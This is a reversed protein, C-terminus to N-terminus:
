VAGEPVTYDVEINNVTVRRFAGGVILEFTNGSKNVNNESIQRDQNTLGVGITLPFSTGDIIISSTTFLGAASTDGTTSADIWVKRVIAQRGPPARFVVSASFAVTGTSASADAFSTSIRPEIKQITGTNNSEALMEGTVYDFWLFGHGTTASAADLYRFTQSAFDYVLTFGCFGQLYYSNRGAAGRTPIRTTGGPFDGSTIGYRTVPLLKEDTVNEAFQGNFRYIGDEAWYYLGSTSSAITYPALTGPAGEVRQVVFPEDTGLIEYLASKTFCFLRDNWVLVRQCPDTVGSTVDVFAQVAELRGIPSYYARGQTGTGFVNRTWWVRGYHVREICDQFVLEPDRPSINDIPLELAPDLVHTATSNLGFYDATTDDFTANLPVDGPTSVALQGAKFFAKGNGVTRWIEVFDVQPDLLIHPFTLLVGQREVDAITVKVISNPIGTFTGTANDIPPNSRTGTISNKFTITYDYDGHTGVGGNITMRDFFVATSGQKNAAVTMQIARISAWTPSGSAEFSSKPLTIRTWVNRGIAIRQEGISQQFSLDSEKTHQNQLFEQEHGVQILDGLGLLKKKQQKTVTRFNLERSYFNAKIDDNAGPVDTSLTVNLSTIHKPRRVRIYFTIFDEDGSALAGFTTLDIPAAFTRTIKASDDKAVRVRISNGLISPSAITAVSTFAQLGDEDAATIPWDAAAEFPDTAVTNIFKESQTDKTLLIGLADNPTPPLIGWATVAGAGDVKVLARNTGINTGDVGFLYETNVDSTPPAALFTMPDNGAVLTTGFGAPLTPMTLTTFVNTGTGTEFQLKEGANTGRTIFRGNFKAFSRAVVPTAVTVPVTASRLVGGALSAVNRARRLSTPPGEGVSDVLRLGDPFLHFQLRPM